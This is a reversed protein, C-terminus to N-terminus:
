DFDRIGGVFNPFRDDIIPMNWAAPNPIHQQIINFICADWDSIKM